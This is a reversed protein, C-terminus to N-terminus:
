RGVGSERGLREKEKVLGMVSEVLEELGIKNKEELTDGDAAAILKWSIDGAINRLGDLQVLGQALV